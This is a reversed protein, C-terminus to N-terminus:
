SFLQPVFPGPLALGDSFLQAPFSGSERVPGRSLVSGGRGGWREEGEPSSTVQGEWPLQLEQGVCSFRCEM